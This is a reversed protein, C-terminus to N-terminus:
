QWQITNIRPHLQRSLYSYSVNVERVTVGISLGMIKLYDIMDVLVEKTIIDKTSLLCYRLLRWMGGGLHLNYLRHWHYQLHLHLKTVITHRAQNTHYHKLLLPLLRSIIRRGHQSHVHAMSRFHQTSYPAANTPHNIMQLLAYWHLTDLAHFVWLSLSGGKDVDPITLQLNSVIFKRNTLIPRGVKRPHDCWATIIQTPIHSGERQFLKGIHTLQRVSIQNQICPINYFTMIRESNQIQNDIVKNM